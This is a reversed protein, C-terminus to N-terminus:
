PLDPVRRRYAGEQGACDDNVFVWEVGAGEAFAMEGAWEDDPREDFRCAEVRVATTGAPRWTPSPGGNGCADGPVFAATGALARLRKTTCRMTLVPPVAEGWPPTGASAVLVLETVGGEGTRGTWRAGAAAQWLAASRESGDLALSGPTHEFRVHVSTRAGDHALVWTERTGEYPLDGGHTRRFIQTRAGPPAALEPADLAVAPAPPVVPEPVESSSPLQPAVAAVASSAPLQPAVAAVTSCAPVSPAVAAPAVAPGADRPAHQATCATALLLASGIRKM